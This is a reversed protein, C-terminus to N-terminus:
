KREDDEASPNQQLFLPPRSSRRRASLRVHAGSFFILAPTAPQPEPRGACCFINLSVAVAICMCVHVNAHVLTYTCDTGLYRIELDRKCSKDFAKRSCVRANASIM